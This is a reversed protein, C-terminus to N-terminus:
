VALTADQPGRTLIASDPVLTGVYDLQGSLGIDNPSILAFPKQVFRIDVAAFSRAIHQSCIGERISSHAELVYDKFLQTGTFLRLFPLKLWLFFRISQWRYAWGLNKCLQIKVQQIEDPQDWVEPCMRFINIKGPHRAVCASLPEAVGGRKEDYGVSMLREVDYWWAVASVHSFPGETYRAIMRGWFGAPEWLALDCDRADRRYESYPLERIPPLSTPINM